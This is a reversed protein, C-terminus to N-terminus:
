ATKTVTFLGPVHVSLKVFADYINNINNIISTASSFVRAIDSFVYGVNKMYTLWAPTDAGGMLYTMEEEEIAAFNAPMKIEYNTM